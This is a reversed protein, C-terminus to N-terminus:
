GRGVIVGLSGALDAVVHRLAARVNLSEAASRWLVRAAVLNAALGIAGVVVVTGAAVTPPDDLRRAAEVFIWVALGVLLAGNALAALIEARRYGFSRSPTAPRSALWSAGLALGLALGDSLM